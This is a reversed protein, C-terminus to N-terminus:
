HFGFSLNKIILIIFLVGSIGLMINITMGAIPYSNKTKKSFLGSLGLIAGVLHLFPAILGFGAFTMGFYKGVSRDLNGVLLSLVLLIVLLVPIVIGLILSAIGLRSHTKEM